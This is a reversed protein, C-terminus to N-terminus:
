SVAMAIIGSIALVIPLLGILASPMIGRKIVSEEPNTPNYFIHIHQGILYTAQFRDMHGGFCYNSAHYKKEGVKYEYIYAIETFRVTGNGIAWYNYGTILFSDDRQDKIVAKTMPWKYSLFGKYILARESYLLGIGLLMLLPLVLHFSTLFQWVDPPSTM